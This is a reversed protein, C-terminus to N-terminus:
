RRRARAKRYDDATTRYCELTSRQRESSKLDERLRGTLPLGPVNSSSVVRVLTEDCGPDRVVRLKDVAPYNPGYDSLRSQYPLYEYVLKILRSESHSRRDEAIFVEHNSFYSSTPLTLALGVLNVNLEKTNASARDDSGADQQSRMDPGVPGVNRSAVSASQIIGLPLAVRKGAASWDSLRQGGSNESGNVSPPPPVVSVVAERLTAQVLSPLGSVGRGSTEPAPAVIRPNGINVGGSQYGVQRIIPPPGIVPVTPASLAQSKLLAAIEPPPGVVTAVNLQTSSRRNLGQNIAPPPGVVGAPGSPANQRALTMAPLPVAPMVPHWAVLQLLRLGSKMQVDPAATTVQAQRDGAHLTTIMQQGAPETEAQKPLQLRPRAAGRAPRYESPSYYIVDSKNFPMPRLSSSQVFSFEVVSGLVALMVVHMAMSQLFQKWPLRTPVFVDTWFRAPPSTVNWLTPPRRLLLDGLNRFFVRYAPELDIVLRPPAVVDVVPTLLTTKALQEVAALHGDDFAFPQESFVEFLGAIERGLFIPVALISRIGLQRCSAVDVRPDTESDDCRLAEGTSVCHGSFGSTTDLLCGLPPAIGGVSARCTMSGEDGLAIAAGAGGTILLARTSILRLRPDEASIDAQAL